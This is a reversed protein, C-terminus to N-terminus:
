DQTAAPADTASAVPEPPLLRALGSRRFVDRWPGTQGRLECTGGQEVVERYLSLLIQLSATDLNQVDSCDIEVVTSRSAVAIATHQLEAAQHVTLHGRLTLRQRQPTITVVSYSLGPDASRVM